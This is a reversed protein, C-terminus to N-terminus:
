DPKAEHSITLSHQLYLPVYNTKACDGGFSTTEAGKSLCCSDNARSLTASKGSLRTYEVFSLPSARVSLMNKLERPIRSLFSETDVRTM